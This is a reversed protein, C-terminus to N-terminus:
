MFDELSATQFPAMRARAIQLYDEVIDIGVWNRNLIEAAICTTGSGVFPDLIIDNERSGLTILYSMLKLPKVTPHYNKMKTKIPNENGGPMAQGGSGYPLEIETFKELGKDRESKSAKPEILFPFTKRVKEPLKEITKIWWSDLSFYRSFSKDEEGKSYFSKGDDGGTKFKGYIEGGWGKQGTKVPAFAGKSEMNLINNQVLLNAPFRGEIEGVEVTRPKWGGEYPKDEGKYREHYGRRNFDYEQEDSKDTIPIKCDQIWTVGKKNKLAQEVFTKESLPKMAVIIVEVAPKPQFGGYSGDLEKAEKSAPETIIGADGMLGYKGVAEEKLRNEPANPRQLTKDIFIVKRELGLNKDIAKSINIGKPFGSAYAWFIPTFGTEFGADQLRKGMETLCDFRPSCMIFAFAGPKLIRLCEKWTETPPISKDWDKGMFELGYPPDTVVSDISNEPFDKMIKLCDGLYFRNLEM